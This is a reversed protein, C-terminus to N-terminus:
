PHLFHPTPQRCAQTHGPGVRTHGGVMLLFHRVGNRGVVLRAFVWVRAQKSLAANSGEREGRCRAPLASLDRGAGAILGLFDRDLILIDGHQNEDALQVLGADACDM